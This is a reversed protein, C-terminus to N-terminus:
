IGRPSEVNTSVASAIGFIAVIIGLIVDNAVVTGISSYGLAFPAIVMWIGALLALWSAWNQRAGMLILALVAVAIGLIIDNISSAGLSAYNLVFPAIILWLGALLLIIASTRTM